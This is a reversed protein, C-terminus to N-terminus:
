ANMSMDRDLWDIQEGRDEDYYANFTESAQEPTWGAKIARAVQNCDFNQCGLDAVAQYFAEFEATYEGTEPNQFEQYPYPM